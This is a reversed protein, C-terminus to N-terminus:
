IENSYDAKEPFISTSQYVVRTAIDFDEASMSLLIRTRDTLYATYDGCYGFLIAQEMLRDSRAYYQRMAENSWSIGDRLPEGYKGTLADRLKAYDEMCRDGGPHEETITYSVRYLGADCFYYSLNADLGVVSTEYVIIHDNVDVSRGTAVPEGESARVTAESDGWRFTKFDFEEEGRAVGCLLLAVLLAVIGKAARM